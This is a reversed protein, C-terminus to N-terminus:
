ANRENCMLMLTRDLLFPSIKSKKIEYQVNQKQALRYM